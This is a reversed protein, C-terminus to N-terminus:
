GTFPVRHVRALVCGQIVRTLRVSPNGSGLQFTIRATIRYRRGPAIRVRHAVFRQLSRLDLTRQLDGNVYVRVLAMRAGRVGVRSRRGAVCARVTRLAARAAQGADPPPPGPPVVPLPPQPQPPQPQPPQPQPPEPRPPCLLTTPWEASDTVTRGGATGSVAATNTVTSTRCDEGPAQTKRSCRYTWTDLPDLTGPSTDAGSPSSKAVLEPPDDCQPDTVKVSAAPFSVDGTNSVYLMYQLTAGAEALAPGTKDIAIAPVGRRVNWFTCVARQGSLVDVNAYVTGSRLRPRRQQLQCAATSVYDGAVTGASPTESVTHRGPDVRVARSAGDGAAALVVAGNVRLDFRGPDSPPALEKAVVLTAPQYNGFDRGRAYTTESTSIPGWACRFMGGPASGTGGPTGDNPFSCTVDAAAARRRGRATAITERLMYTGTRRIDNIVYQGEDDTIAFPETGDHIGDNDYDAWILYRPLGPEGADRRGNANLDHFKVGSASCSRVALARPAVYDQMSSTDSTSSRSHMWVSGFSFCPQDFGDELLRSLNLAAEGFHRRPVSSDYFGPLRATIATDNIAGQADVNATLGGFDDLRGTKACTTAPDSISTVWRQIVVDVDNGEAQYSVLIDGTHRCPIKAKGNDWLRADHNLEFTVYTTGVAEERAFALYLFVESGSQDVASWADLVNSKGPTAGGAQVGLDWLGPENEKSSEFISDAANPDPNHYARGATEMAQWDILAGSDDQNGDAGQFASGPLPNVSPPLVTASASGVSLLALAFVVIGAARLTRREHV